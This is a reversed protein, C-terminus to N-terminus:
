WYPELITGQSVRGAFRRHEEPDRRKLEDLRRNLEDIRAQPTLFEYRIECHHKTPHHKTYYDALNLKGARWYIRLQKLTERDRLWHFRMDMAKTRKPQIKRNVVGEATSNDTQIPTPPQPHGMEKLINRIYVAERACVFLAGLEAEAASSMVNKIIQAINLIAGNNPPTYQIIQYSSTGGQEAARTPKMSTAQM